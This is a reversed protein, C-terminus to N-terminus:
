RRPALLARLLEEATGAVDHLQSGQGQEFAVLVLENIGGVIATAMAPSLARVSPQDRRAAQVRRCVLDAFGRPAPAFDPPPV